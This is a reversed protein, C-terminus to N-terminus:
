RDLGALANMGKQDAWRWLSIWGVRGPDTSNVVILHSPAYGLGRVAEAPVAYLLWARETRGAAVPHLKARPALAVQVGSDDLLGLAVGITRSDLEASGTNTLDLQMDVLRGGDRLDRTRTAVLNAKFGAVTVAHGAPRVDLLRGGATCLGEGRVTAENCTPASAWPSLVFLLVCPALWALPYFWITLRDRQSRGPVFPVEASAVVTGAALDGVRQQRRGTVAISVLGIFVSDVLLLLARAAVKSPRLPRGHIDVVRIGMLAKGLTQGTLAECVFHYSLMLATYALIVAARGEALFGITWAVPLLVLRDIWWARRRKRWFPKLDAGSLDTGPPKTSGDPPVMVLRSSGIEIADGEHLVTAGRVPRGNVRTGELSRLDEITWGHEGHRILAHSPSLFRDGALRAEGTEGSGFRIEDQVQIRQGNAPGGIVELWAVRTGVGQALGDV